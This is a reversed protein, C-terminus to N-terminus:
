RGALIPQPGASIMREGAVVMRRVLSKRHEGEGPWAGPGLIIDATERLSAGAHRVDLAHLALLRNGLQTHRPAPLTTRRYASIVSIQAPLREDDALNFRLSVPGATVTGEIVDLRFLANDREVLLHEAQRGRLVRTDSMKLDFPRGVSEILTVAQVVLVRPDIAASWIPLIHACSQGPDEPFTCGGIRSSTPM